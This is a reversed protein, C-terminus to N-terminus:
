RASARSHPCRTSAVRSGIGSRDRGGTTPRPSRHTGWRGRRSRCASAKTWELLLWSRSRRGGSDLPSVPSEMRQAGGFEKLSRRIGTRNRWWCPAQRTCAPTAHVQQRNKPSVPTVMSATPSPALARAAGVASERGAPKARDAAILRNLGILVPVVRCKGSRAFQKVRVPRAPVTPRVAGPARSRSM